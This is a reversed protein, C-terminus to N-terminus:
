NPLLLYGPDVGEVGKLRAIAFMMEQLESPEVWLYCYLQSSGFFEMEGSQSYFPLAELMARAEAEGIGAEFEIFLQDEEHMLVLSYRIARKLEEDTMESYPKRTWSLDLTYTKLVMKRLVMYDVTNVEGDLNLDASYLLSDRLSYTKLVYRKLIIYDISNVKGDVNLDGLSHNYAGVVAAVPFVVTSLLLAVTLITLILTKTKM